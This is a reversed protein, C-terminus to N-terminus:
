IQYIHVNSAKNWSMEIPVSEIFTIRPNESITKKSCCLISGKPLENVIKEFVDDVTEQKFCLNSFWVFVKADTGSDNSSGNILRESLDISFIDGCIFEVKDAFLPSLRSKLEIADDYRTKVLEIGICKKIKPLSALYLCLKGRGSGIDIFTNIEPNITQVYTYLYKMGDYNMEGYTINHGDYSDISKNQISDHKCSPYLSKLKSVFNKRTTRMVRGIRRRKTKNKIANM